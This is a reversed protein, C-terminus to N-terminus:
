KLVKELHIDIRDGIPAFRTFEEVILDVLSDRFKREGKIPNTRGM